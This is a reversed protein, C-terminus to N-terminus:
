FLLEQTQAQPELRWNRANRDFVVVAGRCSEAIRGALAADFTALDKFNRQTTIVTPLKRDYRGWLMELTTEFFSDFQFSDRQPYTKLFDDFVVFPAGIVSDILDDRADGKTMAGRRIIEFANYFRAGKNNRKIFEITLWSANATKGSGPKGTFIIWNNEKPANPLRDIYARAADCPTFPQPLRPIKAAEFLRREQTKQLLGCSCPTAYSRGNADRQILVGDGGCLECEPAYYGNEQREARERIMEIVSGLKGGNGTGAWVTRM